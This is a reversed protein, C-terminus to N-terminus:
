QYSLLSQTQNRYLDFNQPLYEKFYSWAVQLWALYEAIMYDHKNTHKSKIVKLPLPCPQNGILQIKPSIRLTMTRRLGRLKDAIREFIGIDTLLQLIYDCANYGIRNDFVVHYNNGIRMHTIPKCPIYLLQQLPTHNSSQVILADGVNPFERQILRVLLEVKALTTNDLDLLLHQRTSYGAVIFENTSKKSYTM